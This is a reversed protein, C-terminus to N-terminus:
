DVNFCSCCLPSFSVFSFLCCNITCKENIKNITAAHANSAIWCSNYVCLWLSFVSSNSNNFLFGNLHCIIISFSLRFLISLFSSCYYYHLVQAVGAMWICNHKQAKGNIKWVNLFLRTRVSSSELLSSLKGVGTWVDRVLNFNSKGQISKLIIQIGRQLTFRQIPYSLFLSPFIAIVFFECQCVSSLGLRFERPFQQKAACFCLKVFEIEIEISNRTYSAKKM